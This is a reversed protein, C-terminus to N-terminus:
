KMLVVILSPTNENEVVLCTGKTTLNGIWRIELFKLTSIIMKKGITQSYFNDHDFGKSQDHIHNTEPGM